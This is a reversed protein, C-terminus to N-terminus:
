NSQILLKMGSGQQQIQIGPSNSMTGTHIIENGDGSQWISFGSNILILSQYIVNENGTQLLDIEVDHGNIDAEYRNGFGDQNVRIINYYGEQMLEIRNASGSQAADVGLPGSTNVQQIFAENGTGQQMLVAAAESDLLREEDSQGSAKCSVTMVVLLVSARFLNRKM